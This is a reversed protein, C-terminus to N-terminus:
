QWWQRKCTSTIRFVFYYNTAFQIAFLDVTCNSAKLRTMSALSDPDHTFRSIEEPSLTRQFLSVDKLAGCYNTGNPALEYFAGLQFDGDNDLMQSNDEGRAQLMGDVYLRMEHNSRDRVGVLTHWTGDNVKSTGMVTVNMGLQFVPVGDDLYISYGQSGQEGSSPNSRKTVIRKKPGSVETLIRATITIDKDGVNFNDIKFPQSQARYGNKNPCDIYLAGGIFKIGGGKLHLTLDPNRNVARASRAVEDDNLEYAIM